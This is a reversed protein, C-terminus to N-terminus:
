SPRISDRIRPLLVYKYFLRELLKALLPLLSIPRFDSVYKPRPCKPVPTVNARKLCRPVVCEKLSRNFLYCIPDCLIDAYKRFVWTPVSDPGSSKNKMNVLKRHIEIPSLQVQIGSPKGLESCYDDTFDIDGDFVEAFYDNFEDISFNNRYDRKHIGGICRM